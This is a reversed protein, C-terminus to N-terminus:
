LNDENHIDHRNIMFLSLTVVTVVNSVFAAVILWLWHVMYKVRESIFIIARTKATSGNLISM